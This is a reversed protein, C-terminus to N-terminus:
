EYTLITHPPKHPHRPADSAAEDQASDLGRPCFSGDGHHFSENEPNHDNLWLQSHQGIGNSHQSGRLSSHLFFL